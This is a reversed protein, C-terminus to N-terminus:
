STSWQGRNSFKLINLINDFDDEIEELEVLPPDITVDKGLTNVISTVCYGNCGTTVYEALFIGPM